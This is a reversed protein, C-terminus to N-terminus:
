ERGSSVNCIYGVCDVGTSQFELSANTTIEVQYGFTKAVNNIVPNINWVHGVPVNDKLVTKSVGAISLNNSSDSLCTTTIEASYEWYLGFNQLEVIGGIIANFPDFVSGTDVEFTSIDIVNSITYTGDNAQGAADFALTVSDGVELGHNDLFIRAVSENINVNYQATPYGKWTLLISAKSFVIQNAGVTIFNNLNVTSGADNAKNFTIFEKKTADSFSNNIVEISNVKLINRDPDIISEESVSFGGESQLPKLIKAM